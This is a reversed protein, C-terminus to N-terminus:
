KKVGKYKNVFEVFAINNADKKSLIPKKIPWEIKLDKDNWILGVEHNKSYINDVKYIVESEQSLTCFGHAFGRPIFVIKKNEASLEISDWKGFTDSGERLDVFVDLIKGKICRILKTESFPPMQLHLGRIISKQTSCSHNEQVWEKHLGKENFDNTDYSRM